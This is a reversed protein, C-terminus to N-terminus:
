AGKRKPRLRDLLAKLREGPGDPVAQLIIRGDGTVIPIFKIRPM